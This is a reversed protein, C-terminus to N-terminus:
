VANHFLYFLLFIETWAFQSHIACLGDPNTMLLGATTGIATVLVTIGNARFIMSSDRFLYRYSELSWASPFLSYGNRILATEETFSSAALIVFPLVCFVTLMILFIHLAVTFLKNSGIM